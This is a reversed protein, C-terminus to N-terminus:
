SLVNLEIANRWRPGPLPTVHRISTDCLSEGRDDADGPGAMAAANQTTKQRVVRADADGHGLCASQDRCSLARSTAHWRSVCGGVNVLCGHGMHLLVHMMLFSSEGDADGAPAGAAAHTRQRLGNAGALTCVDDFMMLMEDIRLM